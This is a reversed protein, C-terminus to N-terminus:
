EVGAIYPDSDNWWVDAKATKTTPQNILAYIQYSKLSEIWLVRLELQYMIIIKSPLTDSFYVVASSLVYINRCLIGDEPTVSLETGGLTYISHLDYLIRTNSKM